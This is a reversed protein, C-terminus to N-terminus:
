AHPPLLDAVALALAEAEVLSRVEGRPSGAIGRHGGARDGFTRCMLAAASLSGLADPREFSLTIAGTATNFGVIAQAVRGDHRYLHNVFRDGARLLLRGGCFGAVFSAAALGEQEAAFRAGAALLPREVAAPVPNGEPQGARGWELDLAALFSRDRAVAETVDVVAAGGPAPIRHAEAHARMAEVLPRVAPYAVFAEARHPGQEDVHAVAQWVTSWLGHVPKVGLLGLVGGATDWDWHSVGIVPRDLALAAAGWLADGPALLCPCGSDLSAARAAEHHALTGLSGRVVTSGYEAEVTFAPRQAELAEASTSLLIRMPWAYRM